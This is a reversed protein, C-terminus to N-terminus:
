LKQLISLLDNPNIPKTIFADAGSNIALNAVEEDGYRTVFIVKTPSTRMKLKKLIELGDIDPLRYDLIAFEFHNLEMLELADKGNQADMVQFHNKSLFRTLLRCFIVDDEVILIKQNM